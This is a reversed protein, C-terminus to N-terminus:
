FPFKDMGSFQTLRRTPCSTASFSPGPVQFSTRAAQPFVFTGCFSCTASELKAPLPKQVSDHLLFYQQRMQYYQYSSVTEQTSLNSDGSLGGCFGRFILRTLTSHQPMLPKSGRPRWHVPELGGYAKSERGTVRPVEKYHYQVTRLRSQLPSLCQLYDRICSEAPSPPGSFFCRAAPFLRM